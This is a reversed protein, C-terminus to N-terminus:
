DPGSPMISSSVSASCAPGKKRGIFLLYQWIGGYAIDVTDVIPSFAARLRPQLHAEMRVHNIRMWNAFWGLRTGHFDVLAFRGGPALDGHAAVIAAEFGPNFMSLAYSCLVLDYGGSAPLRSESPGAGPGVRASAEDSGDRGAGAKVDTARTGSAGYAGQVLRVRSGLHATKRRAVDLMAGSLDVGTLQAAPFLEALELLNRGTGCGVELIRAPAPALAATLKLIRSRGFLFSWRTADYIRAHFRYYGVLGPDHKPPSAPPAPSNHDSAAKM